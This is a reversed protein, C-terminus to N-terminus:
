CVHYLQPPLRPELHVELPAAKPMTLGLGEEMDVPVEDSSSIWFGQLLRAVTLNVVQLGFAGGPCSRRGSGFPILEFKKSRVDSISGSNNSDDGDLFREPKFQEPDSWVKPDRHLKWLNPIVQTGKPVHYGNITCDEMAQHPVATPAPPYLRLTEKVIAQLYVLNDIDSHEVPRDRGVKNDLEQQAADLARSNNLLNSLIWTITIATTDAGALILTLATAKIIIEPSYQHSFDDEILSLMVDIFDEDEEEEAAAAAASSSSTEGNIRKKKKKLKHEDVWSQMVDDLEKGVRKMSKLPGGFWNTWGTCPVLDSLVFEGSIRMFAKILEGIKDGGDEEAIEYNFYRKGAIVRTIINAALHEVMESMNVVVINGQSSSILNHLGKVFMSIESVQVDRLLNLRHTSLLQTVTLKRIDRWYSGYPSSGFGAHHYNLYDGPSSMPRSALARDHTTFCEQVTKPDSVVVARKTGIRITFIPGHLDAMDALTIALPKNSSALQLLHGIIPLGGSPEPPLHAKRQRPNYLIFLTTIILLGSIALLHNLEM